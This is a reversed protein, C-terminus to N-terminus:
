RCRFIAACFAPEGNKVLALRYGENVAFWTNSTCALIEAPPEFNFFEIREAAIQIEDPTHIRSTDVWAADRSIREVEKEIDLVRKGQLNLNAPLNFLSHLGPLSHTKTNDAVD